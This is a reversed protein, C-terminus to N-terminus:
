GLIRQDDDRAKVVIVITKMCEPCHIMFQATKGGSIEQTAGITVQYQGDPQVVAISISKDDNTM